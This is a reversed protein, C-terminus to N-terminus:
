ILLLVFLLFRSLSVTIPSPLQWAAPEQLLKRPTDMPELEHLQSPHQEQKAVPSNVSSIGESEQLTLPSHQEVSAGVPAGEERGVAAGDVVGGVAVGDVAGGVSRIGVSAGVKIKGVSAGVIM